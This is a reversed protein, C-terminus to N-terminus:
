KTSFKAFRVPLHDSEKCNVFVPFYDCITMIVKYTEYKFVKAGDLEEEKWGRGKLSAWLSGYFVKAIEVEQLNKSETARPENSRAYSVADLLASTAWKTNLGWLRAFAHERQADTTTASDDKQPPALIDGSDRKNEQNRVAQREARKSASAADEKAVECFAMLAIAWAMRRIQISLNPITVHPAHEFSIVLRPMPLSEAIPNSHM